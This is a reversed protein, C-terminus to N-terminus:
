LLPEKNQLVEVGFHLRHQRENVECHALVLYSQAVNVTFTADENEPVDLRVQELFHQQGVHLWLVLGLDLDVAHLAALEDLFPALVVGSLEQDEALHELM